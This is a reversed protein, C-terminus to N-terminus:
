AKVVPPPFAGYAAQVLKKPSRKVRLVPSTIFDGGDDRFFVCEGPDPICTDNLGGHSDGFAFCGRM